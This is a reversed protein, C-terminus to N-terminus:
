LRLPSFIPKRNEESFNKKKRGKRRPTIRNGQKKVLQKPTAAAGTTKPDRLQMTREHNFVFEKANLTGSCTKSRRRNTKARVRKNQFTGEGDTPKRQHVYTYEGNQEADPGRQPLRTVLM